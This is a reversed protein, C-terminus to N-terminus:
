QPDGIAGARRAAAAAQGRNAVGLKGLINSVHVGATKEAILLRRAIQRNTLGDAILGLVEVERRTLGFPVPPETTAPSGDRLVLRATQAVGDVVAALPTAGLRKAARRATGLPEMASSRKRAGILAEAQRLRAYAAPYPQALADWRAAVEDWREADDDERLRGHEAMCLARTAALAPLLRAPAATVRALIADARADVAGDRTPATRLDAAARLGLAALRLVPAPDDNLPLAALGREVLDLATAAARQWLAAEARVACALVALQPEAALGDLLPAVRDEAAGLRGRAVDLEAQVLMQYREFGPPPRSAGAYALLEEADDWRGLMTLVSAANALLVAGGGTDLGLERSRRIGDLTATLSEELRGASELAFGLNAHGRLIDELAGSAVAIRVAEEIEPIGDEAAGLM